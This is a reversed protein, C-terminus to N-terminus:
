RGTQGSAPPPHAARVRTLTTAIRESFRDLARSLAAVAAQTDTGGAPETLHTEGSFLIEGTVGDKIGWSAELVADGNTASDFQLIRVPVDYTRRPAVFTPLTIVRANGLRATLDQSLVRLISADLSEAWRENEHFRMRNPGLRVVRERRDLYDPIELPGLGVTLEREPASGSMDAAKPAASLVYYRTRDPRPALLSGCGAILLVAIALPVMPPKDSIM